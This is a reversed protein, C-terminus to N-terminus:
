KTSNISLAQSRSLAISSVSLMCSLQSLNPPPRCHYLVRAQVMAHGQLLNLMGLWADEGFPLFPHHAVAAELRDRRWLGVIGFCFWVTAWHSMLAWKLSLKKFEFDVAAECANAHFMEIGFSVASVQRAYAACARALGRRSAAVRTVFLGHTPEARSALLAPM